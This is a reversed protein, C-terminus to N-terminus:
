TFLEKFVFLITSISKKTHKFVTLSINFENPTSLVQSVKVNSHTPGGDMKGCVM